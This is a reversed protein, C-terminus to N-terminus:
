AVVAGDGEKSEAEPLPAAHWRASARWAPSPRGEAYRGGWESKYRQMEANRLVGWAKEMLAVFNTRMKAEAFVRMSSDYTQSFEQVSKEFEDMPGPDMALGIPTLANRVSVFFEDLVALNHGVLLAHASM